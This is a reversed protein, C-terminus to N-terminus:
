INDWGAYLVLPTEDKVYSDFNFLNTCESDVYWGKFSYGEREPDSPITIIKDGVNLYDVWYYGGNYNSTDIFVGYNEEMFSNVVDQKYVYGDEYFFGERHENIYTWAEDEAQKTVYKYGQHENSEYNLCYSVNAACFQTNYMDQYIELYKSPVCIKKAKIQFTREIFKNEELGTKYVKPDVANLVIINCSCHQISNARSSLFMKNAYSAYVRTIKEGFMEDPVIIEQVRANTQIMTYHREKNFVRFEWIGQKRFIYFGHISYFQSLIVLSCVIAIIIIAIAIYAINEKKTFCRHKHEVM